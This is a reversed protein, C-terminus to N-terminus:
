LSHGVENLERQHLFLKLMITLPRMPPLRKMLGLVYKATKPGNAIDFSVDFAVGSAVDDFKVIPM